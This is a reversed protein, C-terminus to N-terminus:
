PRPPYRETCPETSWSSFWWIPWPWALFDPGPSEIGFLNVLGPIGHSTPDQVLFDAAPDKPGSLKPRIGAYGPALKGDELGPWYRRIAGYFSNARGAEVRYDLVTVWEVDPGFRARGALDLTLHVGLGGHEPVPYILRSFPARGALVFYNGKALHLPPVLAPDLGACAARWASPM